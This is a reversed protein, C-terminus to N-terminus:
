LDTVDNRKAPAAAPVSVWWASLRQWLSRRFPRGPDYAMPALAPLRCLQMDCSCSGHEACSAFCGFRFRVATGSAEDAETDIRAFHGRHSSVDM